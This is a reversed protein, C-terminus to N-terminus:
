PASPQSLSIASHIDILALTDLNLGELPKFPGFPDGTFPEITSPQWLERVIFLMQLLERELHLMM